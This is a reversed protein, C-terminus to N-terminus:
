KNSVIYQDSMKIDLVIKRKNRKFLGKIGWLYGM